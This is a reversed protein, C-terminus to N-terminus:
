GELRRRRGEEDYDSAKATLSLSEPSVDQKKEGHEPRHVAAPAGRERERQRSCRLTKAGGERQGAIWVRISKSRFCSSPLLSWSSSPRRLFFPSFPGFQPFLIPHRSTHTTRCRPSCDDISQSRDHNKPGREKRKKGKKCWCLSSQAGSTM